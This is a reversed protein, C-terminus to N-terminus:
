STMYYRTLFVPSQEIEEQLFSVTFIHVNFIIYIEKLTNTKAQLFSFM